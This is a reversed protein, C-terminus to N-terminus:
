DGFLRRLAGPAVISLPNVSVSPDDLPGRVAYAAAFLGGGREPSFLKGIFPIRGPLSNFFYAPVITGRIDAKSDKLDIRGTATVGLSPSVARLEGLYLTNEALTFPAVVRSVGIGPGRLLDAIGYITLAKLLRAAFPADTIRFPGMQAQATLRHDSRTDDYAGSVTLTGGEIGDLLGLANLVTGVDEAAGTLRRITGEPVIDARLRGRPGAEGEAHLRRLLRGDDEASLRVATLDHAKGTLVRDFRAAVSWPTGEPAAPQPPKPESALRKRSLRASVDLVPGAVTAAIPGARPKPPFQVQGTMDSRGIKLRGFRLLTPRNEEFSAHGRVDLDPGALVIDDVAALKGHLLRVRASGQAPSGAQKEWDLPAATLAADTLDAAMDVLGEGNRRQVLQARLAVNGSMASRADIGADALQEITGRGTVTARALVQSPPGARFDVNAAFDVPIRVAIATGFATMGDQTVDLDAAGREIGKGAVLDPVAMDDLRALARLPIEEITVADELPVTLTLKVAAHGSPNKLPIPHESLLRLRPESLLGLADALPGAIDAVIAGFQHPQEIGTIRVTGGRLALGAHPDRVRAGSPQQRGGSVAIEITDPDLIRLTAAGHEIPPVPRLWHVTLDDGRLAGAAETLEADSLDPPTTVVFDVHADRAIGDTINATVWRRANGGVGEPWLRGLDAFAVQDLDLGGTIALGPQGRAITGRLSISSPASDPRGQVLIQM